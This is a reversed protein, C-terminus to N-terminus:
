EEKTAFIHAINGYVNKMIVRPDWVFVSVCGGLAM